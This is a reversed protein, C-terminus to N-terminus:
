TTLLKEEEELRLLAQRYEEPLIKLFNPLEDQWNELLRQALPSLTANYHKEILDKLQTIDEEDTVPDINLGEANVQKHFNKSADYVYAVGGSM